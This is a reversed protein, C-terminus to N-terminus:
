HNRYPPNSCQYNNFSQSMIHHSYLLNNNSTAQHQQPPHQHQHPTNQRTPFKHQPPSYNRKRPQNPSYHKQQARPQPHTNRQYPQQFDLSMLSPPHQRGPKGTTDQVMCTHENDSIFVNRLTVNECRSLRHKNILVHKQM